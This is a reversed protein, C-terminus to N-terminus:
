GVCGELPTPGSRFLYDIMYVLDLVTGQCDGNIDVYDYGAPPEAGRFIADILATIDLVDVTGDANLDGPEPPPPYLWSMVASVLAQGDGNRMYYLPLWVEVIRSDGYVARAAVPTGERAPDDTASNYGMVVEADPDLTELGWIYRMVGNWGANYGSVKATDFIVDPFGNYGFGGLCDIERMEEVEDIGIENELTDPILSRGQWGFVALNNGYSLFWFLNALQDYISYDTIQDDDVWVITGYQGFLSRDAGVASGSTHIYTHPFGAFMGGYVSDQQDASPNGFLPNDSTINFVLVGQDFTAPIASVIGSPEGAYGQTDVRVVQYYYRTVGEVNVDVYSNVPVYSDYEALATSDTGRYIVNHSFDLEPHTGWSLHVEQYEPLVTVDAAQRPVLRPSYSREFKNQSENGTPLVATVSVFYEIGDTLGDIRVSHSDFGPVFLTDDYTGSAAGSYVHYGTVNSDALPAWRVELSQGDGVDWLEFEDVNGPFADPDFDLAALADVVGWGYDNDPTAAQSATLMLARRVDMATWDPHAQMVLAACGAVQPTAGSTGGFSGYADTSGQQAVFSGEGRACVEPKTRGDYTPGRSSSRHIVNNSDVNGCALISDADAPASLTSPDPGENGVANCVLINLSAAVDAAITTVAIDGNYDSPEYWDSYGLSSSIVNAGISDAWEMAAVWNDEEIPIELILHETKALIFDADFAVGYLVGDVEGGALSWTSTGHAQQHPVDQGPEDQVNGDHYLFDYEALVRGESYAVAFAEHDKRFGTDIMCILVGHGTYGLAHVAPVNLQQLQGYSEGYDLTTESRLEHPHHKLKGLPQVDSEEEISTGKYGIVPTIKRVFPLAALVDLKGLPVEFSAANLWRSRQRLKTGEQVIRDVYPQHVPMDLYEVRDRGVKARRAAARKTLAIHEGAIKATMGRQDTFGKDVFYVWVKASGDVAREKIIAAARPAIVPNAKARTFESQIPTSRDLGDARVSLLVLIIAAVGTVTLNRM